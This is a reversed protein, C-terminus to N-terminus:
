CQSIRFKTRCHTGHQLSVRVSVCFHQGIMEATVEFSKRCAHLCLAVLFQPVSRTSQVVRCKKPLRDPRVAADDMARLGAFDELRASREWSTERIM